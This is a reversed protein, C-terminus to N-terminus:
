LLTAVHGVIVPVTSLSVLLQGSDGHSAMYFLMNWGRGLHAMNQESDLHAELKDRSITCSRLVVSASYARITASPCEFPPLYLSGARRSIGECPLTSHPQQTCAELRDTPPM